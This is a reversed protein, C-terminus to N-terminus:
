ISHRSSNLDTPINGGPPEPTNRISGGPVNVVEPRLYVGILHIGQSLQVGTWSARRHSTHGTLAARRYSIHGTLVARRDLIYAQRLYVGTLHSRM